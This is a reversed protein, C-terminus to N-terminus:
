SKVNDSISPKHRVEIEYKKNLHIPIKFVAVSTALSDVIKNQLRPILSFECDNFGEVLYQVTNQYSRM